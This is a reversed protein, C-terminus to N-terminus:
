VPKKFYYWHHDRQMVLEWGEKGMENLWDGEYELHPIVDKYCYQWRVPVEPKIPEMKTNACVWVAIRDAIDGWSAGTSLADDLIYRINKSLTDRFSAM